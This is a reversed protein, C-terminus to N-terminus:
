QGNTTPSITNYVIYGVPKKVAYRNFLKFIRISKNIKTLQM